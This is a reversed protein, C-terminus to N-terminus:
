EGEQDVRRDADPTRATQGSRADQIEGLQQIAQTTGTSNDTVRTNDREQGRGLQIPPHIM